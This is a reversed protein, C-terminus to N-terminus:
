KVNFMKGLFNDTKKIGKLIMLREVEPSDKEFFNKLNSMFQENSMTLLKLINELKAMKKNVNTLYSTQQSATPKKNDIELKIFNLLVTKLEYVDLQLRQIGVDNPKKAEFLNDLFKLQIMEVLKNLYYIFYQESLIEKVHKVHGTLILNIEKLYDSTDGVDSYRDWKMKQIANFAPETRFSALGMLAGMGKYLMDLFREEETNCNIQENFPTELYDKMVNAMQPLTEKCYDGTNAILCALIEFNKDNIQKNSGDRNLKGLIEDVYSKMVRKFVNWIEFMTQTRSYQSARKMVSSFNNFMVVSSELIKVESGPDFNDNMMSKAVNERIEIEEKDVYPKMYQEFSDSISGKFKPITAIVFEKCQEPVYITSKTDSRSRDDSGDDDDDKIEKDFKGFEDCYGGFEKKLANNTKYEFKLTSQLARLLITVDHIPKHELIDTIHVRTMACFEHYIFCKLGWYHPFIGEYHSEIEKMRKTIWTYRKEVSELTSNENKTFEGSYPKLVIDSMKSIIDKQFHIGLTQVLQSAEIMTQKTFSCAGQGWAIYDERLQAKLESYITEKEKFLQHIQAVHDYKKFFICFEEINIILNSVEKYHRVECFERLQDLITNMMIFKKLADTSFKLNRKALDLAKIDQAMDGVLRESDNAKQKITRINTIISDTSEQSQSVQKEIDLNLLAHSQIASLIQSNLDDLESRLKSIHSDLGSLSNETPFYTNIYKVPDFTVIDSEKRKKEM